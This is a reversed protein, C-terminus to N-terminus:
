KLRVSHQLVLLADASVFENMKGPGVTGWNVRSTGSSAHLAMRYFKGEARFGGGPLQKSELLDLGANCRPDALFGAESMVKLAFLLDYHWYCPYHLRIFDESIVSGDALRKFLERRLFLEAARAAAQKSSEAGSLRAHLALARLPILSEHFSSIHAEPHKDCNWGGDPWQWGVLRRLLEETREDALGLSMLAFAANGEM